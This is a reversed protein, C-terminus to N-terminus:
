VTETVKKLAPPQDPNLGRALAIEAVARYFSQAMIIPQILPHLNATPLPTAGELEFGATYVPADLALARRALARVSEQSRDAQAFAIVPFEPGVLALPGHSCEAASFSEAHIQCTEKFKLAAEHAVGLSVGRGVTYLGRVSKLDAMITDWRAHWAEELAEPLIQLDQLLQADQMWEATIWLMNILSSLYSKTAAVSLEPAAHLPVVFHAQQALPSATDNVLAISLAGAAKMSTAAQVIDPSRGSQSISLCVAENMRLQSQYVSSVSPAGSAVPLGIRTSVLYKGFVGAHDSSGRANTMVLKPSKTRLAAGIERFLDRNLKEIIAAIDPTEGAEKQM